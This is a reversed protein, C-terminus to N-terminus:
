QGDKLDEVMVEQIARPSAERITFVLDRYRIREGTRPVRRFLSLLFGGVTEYDGEPLDWELLENIDWIEMRGSIVVRDQDVRHYLVVPQDHEDEIDGVIEEIIDERTIIGICGGYEDVVVAMDFNERQMAFLLEDVPKSFPVYNVPAVRSEIGPDPGLTGLLSVTEIMGVVNDIRERYVPYRSYMNKSIKRLAEEVTASEELADVEVLPIMIEGAETESFEFIRDVMHRSDSDPMSRTAAATIILKLEDRSYWFGRNEKGGSLMSEVLKMIALPVAILPAFVYSFLRLVLLMGPVTDNARPLVYIKPLIRAFLLFPPAIVIFAAIPGYPGLRSISEITVISAALVAGATGGFLAAALFWQPSELFRELSGSSDERARRILAARDASLIAMEAASFFAVALLCALVVFVMVPLSMM